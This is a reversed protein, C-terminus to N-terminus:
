LVWLEHWKLAILVQYMVPINNWYTWENCITTIWFKDNNLILMYKLNFIRMTSPIIEPTKLSFMLGDIKSCIKMSKNKPLVNNLEIM